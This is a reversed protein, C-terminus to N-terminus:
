PRRSQRIIEAASVTARGAFHYAQALFLEGCGVADDFAHHAQYDPLQYRQRCSALTLSGRQIHHQQKRLRRADFQLTDFLALPQLSIHHHRAAAQLFQWDLQVHHCVLVAGNLVEALEALAEAPDVPDAFHQQRLGHVVPSQKLDTDRQGALYYRASRYNLLPPTIEIWAMALLSDTKPNLGSTELDLALYRVHQWSRALQRRRKLWNTLRNLVM